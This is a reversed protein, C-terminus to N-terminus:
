RTRPIETEDYYDIKHLPMVVSSLVNLLHGGIRKYYRIGLVLTTTTAADYGSQAVRGLLSDARRAYDKGQRILNMAQEADSVELIQSAAEFTEEVGRRIERLESVIDDDPFEGPRFDSAEGLNKAYDGIREVDKVLNMLALCYPVNDAHSSISLHAVVSKRVARELKNVRVDKSYIQTRSDPPASEGFYLKGATTTMQCTLQLMETLEDGM